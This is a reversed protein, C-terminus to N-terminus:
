GGEEGVQGRGGAERGGKAVGKGGGAGEGEQQDPPGGPYTYHGRHPYRYPLSAPEELGDRNTFSLGAVWESGPM